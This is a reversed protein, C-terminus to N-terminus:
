AVEEWGYSMVFDLRDTGRQRRRVDTGERSGAANTNGEITTVVGSEIFEEVFGIHTWDEGSRHVMFLSGSVQEPIQPLDAFAGRTKAWKAIEDVSWGPLDWLSNGFKRTGTLNYLAQRTCFTVFGACWPFDKGTHGDMYHAVWPGTNNTLEHAKNALHQRAYQLALAPISRSHHTEVWNAVAEEDKLIPQLANYMPHRLAAWTIEDCIDYGTIKLLAAQTAPGFDEDIEVWLDRLCLWEQMLKVDSGSAGRYLNPPSKLEIMSDYM